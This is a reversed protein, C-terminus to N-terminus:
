DLWRPVPLKKEKLFTPNFLKSQYRTGYDCLVTVITHGPGLRKAVKIAGGVNIGTSGGVVLGEEELLAFIIPLAEEDTVQLADDIPAGELNKTVRGQGIGETISNGEAKLEGHAYHNFLASGMPDALVTRVTENREKLAMSVGALTGGTGVASVFADIRGGTQHWIEAGTTEYHAQRNAVNDFQNAWVAGNPESRNLEEALRGSVKVYNGPDKYPVAPVLRLDARCLRLTDKKEQSQTEPMVIVTRYGLANAVLALGIGTNGATGEVIVGGPRLAGRKEADRIIYLAARDKVSGGPNLFECKGLIECGTEESARRLRVLPTNGILDIFGNRVDM